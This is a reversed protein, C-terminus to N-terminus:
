CHWTASISASAGIHRLRMVLISYKPLTRAKRQVKRAISIAYFLGDVALGALRFRTTEGTATTEKSVGSSVSAIDSSVSALGGCSRVGIGGHGAQPLAGAAVSISSMQGFHPAYAKRQPM